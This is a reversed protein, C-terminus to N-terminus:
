KVLDRRLDDADSIINIECEGLADCICQVKFSLCDEDNDTSNLHFVVNDGGHKNKTHNATVTYDCIIDNESPSSYEGSVHSYRNCASALSSRLQRENYTFDLNSIDCTLKTKLTNFHNTILTVLGDFLTGKGRTDCNGTLSLQSSLNELIIKRIVRRLKSETIRM